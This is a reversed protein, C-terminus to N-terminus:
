DSSTQYQYVASQLFYLEFGSDVDASLCFFM